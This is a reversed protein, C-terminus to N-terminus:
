ISGILDVYETEPGLKSLSVKKRFISHSGTGSVNVKKCKQLMFPGCGLAMYFIM